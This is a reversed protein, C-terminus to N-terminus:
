EHEFVQAPHRPEYVEDMCASNFFTTEGVKVQGWSGHLHGFLHYRPKVRRVAELLDECGVHEIHPGTEGLRVDSRSGRNVADLIGYPPGHTVLIDVKPIMDWYRKIEPGREKMFAWRGFEPTIPSGYVTIKNPGPNYGMEVTLKERDITACSNDLYVIGIDAMLKAYLGPDSELGFDHNGGVFLKLAHPMASYLRMFDFLQPQTGMYTADGSHILLDGDPVPIEHLSCHTDSIHVIKM